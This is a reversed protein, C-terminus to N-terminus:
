RMAFCNIPLYNVYELYLMIGYAIFALYLNIGLEGFM